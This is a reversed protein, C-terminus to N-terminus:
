KHTECSDQLIRTSSDGNPGVGNLNSFTIVSDRGLVAIWCSNIGADFSFLFQGLLSIITIMSDGLITVSIQLLLLMATRILPEVTVRRCLRMYKYLKSILEIIGLILLLTNGAGLFFWLLALIRELLLRMRLAMMTM